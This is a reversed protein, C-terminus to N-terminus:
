PAAAIARSPAPEIVDSHCGGCAEIQEDHSWRLLFANSSAHPFHCTTCAVVYEDGGSASARRSLPLSVRALGGTAEERMTYGATVIGRRPVIGVPHRVFHGGQGASQEMGEHCNLCMRSADDLGSAAAGAAGGARFGTDGHPDHCAVCELGAHAVPTESGPRRGAWDVPRLAVKHCSECEIAGGAAEGGTSSTASARHCNSCNGHAGAGPGSVATRAAALLLAVLLLALHPRLSSLPM